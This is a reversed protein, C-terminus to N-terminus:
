VHNNYWGFFLLILITPIGKIFINFSNYKIFWWIIFYKFKNGKFLDVWILKDRGNGNVDGISIHECVFDYNICVNNYAILRWNVDSKHKKIFNTDLYKYKSIEDWFIAHINYDDIKENTIYKIIDEIFKDDRDKFYTFYEIWNIKYFYRKINNNNMLYKPKIKYLNLKDDYHLIIPLKYVYKHHSGECNNYIEYIYRIIESNTTNMFKAIEPIYKKGVILSLECVDNIEEELIEEELKNVKKHKIFNLFKIICLDTRNLNKWEYYKDHLKFIKICDDYLM